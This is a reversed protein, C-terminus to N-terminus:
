SGSTAYSEALRWYRRAAEVISGKNAKPIHADDLKFGEVKARVCARYCKYFNLITGIEIDGSAVVYADVFAQSLDPRGYRDLDM